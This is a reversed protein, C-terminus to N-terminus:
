RLKLERFPCNNVHMKLDRKLEKVENELKLLVQQMEMETLLNAAKNTPM